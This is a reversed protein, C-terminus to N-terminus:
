KIQVDCKAADFEAKQAEWYSAPMRSLVNDKHVSSICGAISSFVSTITLFTLIPHDSAFHGVSKWFNFKEDM